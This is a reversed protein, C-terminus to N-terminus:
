KVEHGIQYNAIGCRQSNCVIGSQITLGGHRQNIQLFKILRLLSEMPTGKRNITKHAYGWTGNVEPQGYNVAAASLWGPM